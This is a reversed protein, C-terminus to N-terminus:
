TKGGIANYAAGYAGALEGLEAPVIRVRTGAPAWEYQRVWRELPEFLASGARAIGGGIIAAEPDLINIFSAVACALRRVSTLWVESAGIDGARHAEVLDRTSHFRGKSRTWLTANGIADELSGPMGTIGPPGNPDLCVHGLHGGRGIHGRLLRGQVLAAGGVGTGLTLLFVNDFGRAAGLWCEGLLASHADNLVPVAIDVGLFDKWVLGELGLLRDPMRVIATGDSAVLGPASLGISSAPGRERRASDVLERIRNAWDMPVDPDFRIESKHLTEGERSVVVAKINTGGLDIGLAYDM